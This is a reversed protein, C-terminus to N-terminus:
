DMTYKLEIENCFYEFDRQALHATNEFGLHKLIRNMCTKVLEHDTMVFYNPKSFNQIGKSHLIIQKFVLKICIDVRYSSM